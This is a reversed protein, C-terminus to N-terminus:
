SLVRGRGRQPPAPPGGAAARLPGPAPHQRALEATWHLVAAPSDLGILGILRGDRVFGTIPRTGPVPSELLVTDAGLEPRGAVQIRVGHQESWYRPVPTYAPSGQPGTLLNEAAARSM